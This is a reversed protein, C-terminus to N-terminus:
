SILTNKLKEIMRDLEEAQRTIELVDRTNDDILGAINSFNENEAKVADIIQENESITVNIIEIQKKYVCDMSYIADLEERIVSIMNRISSFTENFVEDQENLNASSKEISESMVRVNEQLDSIASQINGVSEETSSALNGVSEAVVAFGRGSEGARAAEISANLALLATESSIDNIVDLAIGIRSVCMLLERSIMKTNESSRVVEENKSQLKRLLIENKESESLLSKSIQEVALINKNLEGSCTELSTMNEASRQAEKLAKGSEELLTDSTASLEETAASQNQSIEALSESTGSLQHTISRATNLIREVRSNNKELQEKKVNILYHEVLYVMIVTAVSSLILALGRMIIEPVYNVDSVPLVQRGRIFISILLSANCMLAISIILRVDIFLAGLIMWFFTFAWFQRTPIMYIIFNFQITMVAFVFLKGLTMMKPIIRQENSDNIYYANKILLLGVMFYFVCTFSFVGLLIWSVTKYYGLMKCVILFIGASQCAGTIILIVIKYVKNLYEEVINTNM